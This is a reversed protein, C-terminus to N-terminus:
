VPADPNAVKGYGTGYGFVDRGRRIPRGYTVEIWKGGQYVPAEPGPEYKGGVQMASSGAPSAPRADQALLSAVVIATAASIAVISRFM